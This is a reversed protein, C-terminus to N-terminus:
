SANALLKVTVRGGSKKGWQGVIKVLGTKEHAKREAQKLALWAETQIQPVNGKFEAEHAPAVNITGNGPFLEDFTHGLDTALKKLEADIAEIRDNDPKLKRELDVRERCLKARAALAKADPKARRSTATTM